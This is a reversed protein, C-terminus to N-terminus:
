KVQRSTHRWFSLGVLSLGALAFIAPEPVVTAYVAFQYPSDFRTWQSGDSSTYSNGFATWQGVPNYISTAARSWLYSGNAVATASTVVIFYSGFPPLTIGSTSYTFIGPAAPDSGSLGGLSTGPQRALNIDYLFVSFGSPSGSASAILLQISNLFYGGSNTGTNFRTAIWQDSGVASSGASSEGLNSLYITGQAPMMHPRLLGLALAFFLITPKLRVRKWHLCIIQGARDQAALLEFM